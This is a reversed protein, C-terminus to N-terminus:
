ATASVLCVGRASAGQGLHRVRIWKTARSGDADRERALNDRLVSRHGGTGGAAFDGTDLYRYFHYCQEGIEERMKDLNERYLKAMRWGDDVELQPSPIDPDLSQRPRILQRIQQERGISSQTFEDANTRRTREPPEEESDDRQDDSIEGAVSESRHGSLRDM